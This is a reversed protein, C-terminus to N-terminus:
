RCAREAPPQGMFALYTLLLEPLIVNSLMIRLCSHELKDKVVGRPSWVAFYDLGLQVKNGEGCSNEWQLQM